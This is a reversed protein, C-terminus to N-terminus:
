VNQEGDSKNLVHDIDGSYPPLKIKKLDTGGYGVIKPRETREYASAEYAKNNGTKAVSFIIQSLIFFLLLISLFSFIFRKNM